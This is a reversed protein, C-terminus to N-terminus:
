EIEKRIDAQRTRRETDLSAEVADCSRRSHKKSCCWENHCSARGHTQLSELVLKDSADVILLDQVFGMTKM